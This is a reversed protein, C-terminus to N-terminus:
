AILQGPTTRCNNNSPLLRTIVVETHASYPDGMKALDSGKGNCINNSTVLRTIIVEQTHVM